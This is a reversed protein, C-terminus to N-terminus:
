RALDAELAGTAPSSGLRLRYIQVDELVRMVYNRTEYIPISEVWDIADISPARPDGLTALWDDVRGPGANYAAIALPYSGDFRDLMDALFTSGLRINHRADTTLRGLSHAIGLQNAVGTATTPMLQMLGRAGAPSVADLNFESERRIIAHILADEVRPDATSLDIVPYGTDYLVVNDFILQKTAHVAMNPLGLDLALDAIARVTRPDGNSADTAARFFLETRRDQGIQHLAQIIRGLESSAFAPDPPPDAPLTALVPQGLRGAALQGYFASPSDAAIGYWQAAEVSRGMAELARGSWYAGRGLSIPTGVNNYLTQFHGFATQPDGLFRLALWGSLWEAQSLPFGDAQRHGSAVQYARAHEGRRFLRRALINRETWWARSQALAAPQRALIQLAGDTRDARRRWRLREYLLGEDDQLSAPVAAVVADVGDARNALQIRAEALARIGPAVHPMLWRAEQFRGRWILHDIRAAHDDPGLLTGAGGLVDDQSQASVRLDPWTRQLFARADTTRGTAQLAAVYRLTGDVSVPTYRDFYGTVETPSLTAPMLHEAQNRLGRQDPWDPNRELFDAIATFDRDGDDNSMAVWDLVDLLVPDSAQGAMQRATAWAHLDAAEFAAQYVLVDSQSLQAASPAPLALGLLLAGLTAPKALHQRSIVSFLQTIM